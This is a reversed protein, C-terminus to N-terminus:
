LTRREVNKREPKEDVKRLIRLQGFQLTSTAGPLSMAGILQPNAALANDRNTTM